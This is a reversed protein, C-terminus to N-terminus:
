GVLTSIIGLFYIKFVSNNIFNNLFSVQSFGGAMLDNTALVCM